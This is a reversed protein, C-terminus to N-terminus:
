DCIGHWIFQQFSSSYVVCSIKYSGRKLYAQSHMRDWTTKDPVTISWWQNVKQDHWCSNCFRANYAPWEFDLHRQSIHSHHMKQALSTVEVKAYLNTKTSHQMGYNHTNHWYCLKSTSCVANQLCYIYAPNIGNVSSKSNIQLIWKQFRHKTVSFTSSVSHQLVCAAVLWPGAM